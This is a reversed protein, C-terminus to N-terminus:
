EMGYPPPAEEIEDEPVVKDLEVYKAPIIKEKSFVIWSDPTRIDRYSVHPDDMQYVPIGDEVMQDTHITYLYADGHCYDDRKLIGLWGGGVHVGYYGKLQRDIGEMPYAPMGTQHFGPDGHSCVVREYGHEVLDYEGFLRNDSRKQEAEREKQRRQYDFEQDRLYKPLNAMEQRLQEIPMTMFTQKEHKIYDPNISSQYKAALDTIAKVYKDFAAMREQQEDTECLWYKFKM